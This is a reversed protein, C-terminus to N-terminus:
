RHRLWKCAGSVTNFYEVQLKKTSLSTQNVFLRVLNSEPLVIAHYRIGAKEMQPIIQSNYFEIDENLVIGAKSNDTLMHLRCYHDKELQITELVRSQVFQYHESSHPVGSVKIKICPVSEVFSVVAYQDEYFKKQHIPPDFSGIKEKLKVTM